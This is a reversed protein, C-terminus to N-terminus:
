GQCRKYWYSPTSRLNSGYSLIKQYLSTNSEIAVRLQNADMNALESNKRVFLRADQLATNRLLTNSAFYRFRDDESFRQGDEDNYLM